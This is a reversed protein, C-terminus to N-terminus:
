PSVDSTTQRIVNIRKFYYDQEESRVTVAIFGWRSSAHVMQTVRGGYVAVLFLGVHGRPRESQMTMFCLALARSLAFETQPFSWGGRGHSMESSTTRTVGVGCAKFYSYLSGSCDKESGPELSAGGWSYAPNLDLDIQVRGKICECTKEGVFEQQEALVTSWSLLALLTFVVVSSTKRM